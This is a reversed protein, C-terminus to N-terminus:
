FDKRTFKWMAILVIMSEFILSSGISTAIKVTGIKKAAEMMKQPDMQMVSPQDPVEQPTFSDEYETSTGVLTGAIHPIDRTNPIIFKAVKTVRLWTPNIEGGMAPLMLTMEHTMQVGFMGVWALMALLLAAMASRTIVAFLASFAFIYSFLAVTLPICWLYNWTWYDWRWGIVLLTLVVFFSVQLTVFVMGGLYKGLFIMPRSIPKALIVDVAGREMLTPFIGATAVLAIIIGIWGIYTDAILKTLLGGINAHWDPNSTALFYWDIHTLGFLLNIGKADFSLCAMAAAILISIGAMVWFLKRDLAERFCDTILARLQLILM